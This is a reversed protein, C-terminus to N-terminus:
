KQFFGGGFGGGGFGGGAGARNQFGDGLQIYRLLKAIENHNNRNQKIIMVSYEVAMKIEPQKGKGGVFEDWSKLVRISTTPEGEKMEKWSEPSVLNPLVKALDNAVDTPVRYYHTEIPNQDVRDRPKSNRLAARYNELLNLVETQGQPLQYVVMTGPLPFEIAGEGGTDLWDDPAAQSMIADLLADSEPTNRCLDRVDYVATVLEICDDTSIWLVNDQIKWDMGKQMCVLDLVTGLPQNEIKLSVPMRTRIGADSLSNVDLRIDSDTLEGLRAAVKSLPVDDLEVSINKKVNEALKQNGNAAFIMTQRGHTNLAKLLGAVRRHVQNSQRVFMVDGLMVISGLGTGTAEWSEAAICNEIASRIANPKFEKDRLDGLNYQRTFIFPEKDASLHIVKGDWRWDIRLSKLRDLLLYIPEDDLKDSIPESSLIGANSMSNSDLVVHFGTEQQLWQVVDKLSQDEFKVTKRAALEEPLTLTPDIALPEDAIKIKLSPADEQDKQDANDQGLVTEIQFVCAFLLFLLITTQNKM